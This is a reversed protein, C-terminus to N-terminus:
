ILIHSTCDNKKWLKMLSKSPARGPWGWPAIHTQLWGAFICKCQRCNLVTLFESSWSTATYYLPYCHCGLTNFTSPVSELGGIESFMKETQVNSKTCKIVQVSLYQLIEPHIVSNSSFLPISHSQPLVELLVYWIFTTTTCFFRM